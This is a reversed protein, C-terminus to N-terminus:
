AREMYSHSHLWSTKAKDLVVHFNKNSQHPDCCCDQEHNGPDGSQCGPCQDAAQHHDWKIVSPM